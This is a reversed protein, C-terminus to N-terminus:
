KRESKKILKEGLEKREEASMGLIKATMKEHMHAKTESKLKDIEAFHARLSEATLKNALLGEGFSKRLARMKDRQADMYPKEKEMEEHSFLERQLGGHHHSPCFGTAKVVMFAAFFANLALSCIVVGRNNLMSM